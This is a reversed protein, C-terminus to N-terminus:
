DTSFGRTIEGFGAMAGALWGGLIYSARLAVLVVFTTLARYM